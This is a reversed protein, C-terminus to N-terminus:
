GKSQPRFLQSATCTHRRYLCTQTCDRHSKEGQFCLSPTTPERPCKHVPLRHCRGPLFSSLSKPLFLLLAARFRGSDSLSSTFSDVTSFYLILYNM